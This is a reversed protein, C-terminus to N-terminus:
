AHANAEHEAIQAIVQAIADPQEQCVAHGADAIERYLRRQTIPLAEFARRVNAPPTIRDQAGVVLTTPVALKAADDLLRGAALLRAAQDYGPRRIAAMAQTVARLVDPRAAPDALLGGARAAAFQEAGLRDLEAIRGAVPPPLPAGKRTEYGLAPSVLILTAVRRPATLAYRAAILCGLSHGVLVCRAVDLAHLLRHLAAAYDAADPWEAPLPQSAGYGPANWALAPACGGLAHMLSGFSQANSGIGHLLVVPLAGRGETALYGVGAATREVLASM